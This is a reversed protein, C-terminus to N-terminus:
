ENGYSCEGYGIYYDSKVSLNQLTRLLLEGLIFQRIVSLEM